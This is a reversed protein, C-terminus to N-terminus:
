RKLLRFVEKEENNFPFTLEVLYLGPPLSSIDLSTIFEEQRKFREEEIFVRGLYDVVRIEVSRTLSGDRIFVRVEEEAPNPYFLVDDFRANDITIDFPVANNRNDREIYQTIPDVVATITYNGTSRALPIEVQFNLNLTGEGPPFNVKEKQLTFPIADPDNLDLLNFFLDVESAEDVGLYDLEFELDLVEGSTISFNEQSSSIAFDPYFNCDSYVDDFLSNNAWVNMVENQGPTFKRLCNLPAYSMINAPEPAFADGNPDVFNGVYSCGNMPSLLLNPDAPTDCVQDGLRECGERSVLERGFISEHTHLLGFYHGIEHALLGGGASASKQMIIFRDRKLIAKREWQGTARNFEFTWPFTSIGGAAISLQPDGIEDLYFVNITRPVHFRDNLDIKAEDYSYIDQNGQVFRPSGCLFFQIGSERFFSNVAEVEDYLSQVDFNSSGVTPEVVFMTIGMIQVDQSRSKSKQSNERRISEIFNPPLPHELQTGCLQGMVQPTGALCFIGLLILLQKINM